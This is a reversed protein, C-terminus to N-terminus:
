CPSNMVQKNQYTHTHTTKMERSVEGSRSIYIINKKQMFDDIVTDKLQIKNGVTSHHRSLNDHM